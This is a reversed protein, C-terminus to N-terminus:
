DGKTQMDIKLIIKRILISVLLSVVFGVFFYMAIISTGLDSAYLQGNELLCANTRYQYSGGQEICDDVVLYTHLAWIVLLSAFVGIFTPTSTKNM